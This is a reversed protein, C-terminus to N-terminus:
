CGELIGDFEREVRRKYAALAANGNVGEAGPFVSALEVLHGEHEGRRGLGERPVWQAINTRRRLYDELTWCAEHEVAVKASPVREQLGPFHEAGCPPPAHRYVSAGGNRRPLAHGVTDAVEQGLAVCSSLKGGYLSIWPLQPDRALVHRRSIRISHAISSRTRKVALPRVGCRLSVIDGADVPQALHRNLEALLTRVDGTNVQFGTDPDENLTETPGWLAVPGWPILSMADASPSDFTLPMAHEPRRELAIFVGKGFVHKWGTQVGFQANVADTWVGAANVIWRARAEGQRGTIRDRLEIRWHTDRAGRGGGLAECHNLAIHEPDRAALIWHMVFRADSPAVRAEEYVISDLVHGHRFFHSEPFERQKVPTHRRCGGLGWYLWLALQMLTTGRRDDPTLIYRNPAPRIWDPRDRVLMDRNRCLNIVTRFDLTSIYLLGGWIMMASSQSTGGAFDGRDVLLVRYGRRCLQAYASAGNIGGGIIAVDYDGSIASDWSAARRELM